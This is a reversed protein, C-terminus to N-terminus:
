GRVLRRPVVVPTASRRADGGKIVSLTVTSGEPGRLLPIAESLTMPAVAAGDIAVVEDGPAMGVEAAGGGPVVATVLLAEGQKQVGAGIGALEVRPDEGERVPTLELTLPGAAEGERLPPASVVRAHHGAASAMISDSRGALGALEFRGAADTTTENRVPVGLSPATGEVAVRAGAIPRGSGREVVVGTLRGGRSLDFDASAEGAGPEPVVVRVEPSPAYGPAVVSVVALGPSLGDLAYRGAPDIVSVSRGEIGLVVVTFPAVASGTARDRVRGALRGGALLRLRVGTAGAELEAVAPAFGPRSATLRWAGRALGPLEFRGSADARATAPAEVPSSRAVASVVAGEAPAGSPEEVTGDITLAAGGLPGLRLTLKRGIRVTYDVRARATAFGDRRAEVVADEPATFRFRGAADSRHLDQLPVLTAAGAGGGLIRIQAEAVPHGGPDVVQGEYEDAPSLAITIGRVLEGPRADLLVPSQGWEPAFPLHGAATAAGLSWRGPLRADFRFRGDPGAVVASTEEARAFVVQAGALGEGTASSVVRGEFAGNPAPPGSPADAGPVLRLSTTAIATRPFDPRPREAGASARPSPGPPVDPLRGRGPWLLALLAVLAVLTAAALAVATSRRSVAM